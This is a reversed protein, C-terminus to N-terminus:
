HRGRGILPKAAKFETKSIMGDRNADMHVFRENAIQAEFEKKTIQGDTNDDMRAFRQRGVDKMEGRSIQGNNDVDQQEFIKEALEPLFRAFRSKEMETMTIMGDENADGRKFREALMTNYETKSVQGNEDADMQDFPSFRRHTCSASIAAILLVTILLKNTKM